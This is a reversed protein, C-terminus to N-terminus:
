RWSGRSVRYGQGKQLPLSYGWPVPAKAKPQMDFNAVVVPSTSLRSLRRLYSFAARAHPNDPISDFSAGGGSGGSGFGVSMSNPTQNLNSIGSRQYKRMSVIFDDTDEGAGTLFAAWHGVALRLYKCDMRGRLNKVTHASNRWQLVEFEDFSYPVQTEIFDAASAVHDDEIDSVKTDTRAWDVTTWTGGEPTSSYDRITFSVVKSLPVAPRNGVPKTEATWVADYDGAPAPIVWRTRAANVDPYSILETGTATYVVTGSMDVISMSANRIPLPLGFQSDWDVDFVENKGVFTTQRM